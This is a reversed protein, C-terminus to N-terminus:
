EKGLSLHRRRKPSFVFCLFFIAAATLVITAGSPLGWWYSFFLGRGRVGGRHARVAGDDERFRLRRM